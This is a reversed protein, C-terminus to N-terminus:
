GGCGINRKFPVNKSIGGFDFDENEQDKDEKKDQNHASLPKKTTKPKKVDKQSKM